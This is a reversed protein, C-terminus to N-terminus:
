YQEDDAQTGEFILLSACPCAKNSDVGFKVLKVARLKLFLARQPAGLKTASYDAALLACSMRGDSHAPLGQGHQM